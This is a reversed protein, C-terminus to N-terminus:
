SSAMDVHASGSPSTRTPRSLPLEEMRTGSRTPTICILGHECLDLGLFRLHPVRVISLSVQVNQGVKNFAGFREGLGHVSEGVGLETQTFMYHKRDRMEEVVRMNGLPPDYAFGVSRFLMSTLDKSGDSAHFRVDFSHPDPGVTCAVSGSSLTTGTKGKAISAKSEPKGDPFLDFNPGRRMQGAWHTAEVSIVGDFVAELKITITPCNLTDGRDLIKRVPCLLEISKGDESETISYVDEAYSVGKDAAVLWM